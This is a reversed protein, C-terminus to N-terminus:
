AVSEFFALWNKEFTKFGFKNICTTRLNFAQDMRNEFHEEALTTELCEILTDSQFNELIIGKSPNDLIDTMGSVPTVITFLGMAQAELVSNSFGESWSTQIYLTSEKLLQIIEETNQYGHFVVVEKLDLKEVMTTLKHEDEGYGVVHYVFRKSHKLSALSQLISEYGKIWNLRGITIIQEGRAAYIQERLVAIERFDYEKEFEERLGSPIVQIKPYASVDIKVVEKQIVTSNCHIKGIKDLLPLYDYNKQKPWILIDSGMFSVSATIGMFRGYGERHTTNYGFPFYLHSLSRNLLIPLDLLKRKRPTEKLGSYTKVARLPNRLIAMLGNALTLSIISHVGSVASLTALDSKNGREYYIYISHKQSAVTIINFLFTESKFNLSRLIFAIQGM